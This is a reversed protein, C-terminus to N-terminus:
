VGHTKISRILCNLWITIPDLHHYKNRLDDLQILLETQEKETLLPFVVVPTTFKYWLRSFINM